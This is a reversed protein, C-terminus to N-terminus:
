WDCKTLINHIFDCQKPMLIPMKGGWEQIHVLGVKSHLAPYMM